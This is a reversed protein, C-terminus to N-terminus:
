IDELIGGGFVFSRGVVWAFCLPVELGPKVQHFFTEGMHYQIFKEEYM